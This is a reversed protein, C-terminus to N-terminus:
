FYYRTKKSIFGTFYYFPIIFIATYLASLLSITFLYELADGHGAFLFFIAWKLVFYLISSGLSLAIASFINDNVRYSSLLGCVTGILAFVLLNFCYSEAGTADLLMGFFAGLVLGAWERAAMAVSVLLPILLVPHASGLKLTIIGTSDFLYILFGLVSVVSYFTLNHKVTKM